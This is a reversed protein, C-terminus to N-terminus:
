SSRAEGASRGALLFYLIIMLWFFLGVGVKISLDFEKHSSWFAEIMAAVFFFSMAGQMVPMANRAAQQLAKKRKLNGPNILAKGLIFGGAGSLAIALLEFSSHGSVFSFFTSSYGLNVLYGAILGIYVSNFLLMFATGFGMLLGAAFTRFGISTNNYLYFGFMYWDGDEARERGIVHNEPNYMERVDALQEYSFMYYCVDPNLYAISAAILMPIFFFAAASSVITANARISEPFSQQYFKWLNLFWFNKRAYLLSHYQLVLQRLYQVLRDSYGRTESLALHQSLLRYTAPVSSKDSGSELAKEAAQWTASQSKIFESQKM